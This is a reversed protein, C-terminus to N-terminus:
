GCRGLLFAMTGGTEPRLEREGRRTEFTMGREGPTLLIAGRGQAEIGYSGANGAVDCLFRTEGDPWCSGVARGEEGERGGDGGRFTAVVQMATEGPARSTGAPERGIRLATVAQEPAAALDAASFRVEWCFNMSFHTQDLTDAV